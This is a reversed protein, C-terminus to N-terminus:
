FEPRSAYTPRWAPERVRVTIGLYPRRALRPGREFFPNGIRLAANVRIANLRKDAHASVM